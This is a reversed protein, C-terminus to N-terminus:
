EIPVWQGGQLNLLDIYLKLTTLAPAGLFSGQGTVSLFAGIRLPKQQAQVPTLALVVGFLALFVASILRNSSRRYISEFNVMPGSINYNWLGALPVVAKFWVPGHVSKKGITTARFM